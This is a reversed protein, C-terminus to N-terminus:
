LLFPVGRFPGDPLGQRIADRAQEYMPIVISNLKPDREEALAIATELLDEAGAEGKAVLDALGLADLSEYNEIRAM